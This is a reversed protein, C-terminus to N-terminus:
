QVNWLRMLWTLTLFQLYFSHSDSYDTKDSCENSVNSPPLGNNSM